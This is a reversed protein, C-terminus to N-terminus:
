GRWGYCCLSMQLLVFVLLPASLYVRFYTENLVCLPHPDSGLQVFISCGLLISSKVGYKQPFSVLLPSNDHYRSISFRFVMHLISTPPSSVHTYGLSAWAVLAFHADHLRATLKWKRNQYAVATNASVIGDLQTSLPSLEPRFKSTQPSM